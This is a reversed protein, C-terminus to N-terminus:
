QLQEMRLSAERYTEPARYPTARIEISFAAGPALSRSTGAALAQELNVPMSTWPEIVVVDQYGRWGGYCMWLWLNPCAERPFTFLVGEGTTADEAAFWGAELDTVYHGCYIGASGPQVKSMDVDGLRPWEYRQGPTGLSPSSSVGVVGTRGPLRLVTNPNVHIAPHTGWIYDFPLVGLNEVQFRMRIVPAGHDLTVSKRARVPSIPGYCSFLSSNADQADVTWALSRLEGLNPYSEGGYTCADCTPFADDWGGSWYNDFNSDIPYPRPQVRPNQWLIEGNAAKWFLSQIKCGVQPLIEARLWENELQVSSESPSM